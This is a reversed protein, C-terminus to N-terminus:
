LSLPLLNESPVASGRTAFPPLLNNLPSPISAPLLHSHNLDPPKLLPPNCLALTQSFPNPNSNSIRNNFQPPSLTPSSRSRKLSPRQQPEPTLFPNLSHNISASRNLTLGPIIAFSSQHPSLLPTPALSPVVATIPDFLPADSAAPVAALGLDETTSLSQSPLPKSQSVHRYKKSQKSAEQNTYKKTSGHNVPQKKKAAVEDAPPPTYHLCNRMVHGLEHCHSCTPPVWPYHVSVEVVEGNEREFEVVSPLPQTLDVEVKVHALTLSVLNKTFDDTEKPEGILGAVLSLGAEYRLDLPVGTLHAWIRIAKLPPTSTSHVSSWQATHFMSDGVYWINKELIKQRLYESHIRVLVSRNLPNNHIELRKGKGWMHNFVSQIQNFPPAKGNFYCIIFDKHLEAGKQFVSDPILVRPRGSASITVPARRHLTKDESLRIKQILSSPITQSSSSANADGTLVPSPLIPHQITEHTTQQSPIPISQHSSSAKNTLTPSSTSPPVIRCGQQLNKEKELAPITDTVSRFDSVTSPPLASDTECATTGNIMAPLAKPAVATPHKIGKSSASLVTGSRQFTGFRYNSSKPITKAELLSPFNNPSLPSSPDPPDPPILPPDPPEGAAVTSPNKGSLLGPVGWRSQMPLRTLSTKITWVFCYCNTEIFTFVRIQDNWYPLRPKGINM